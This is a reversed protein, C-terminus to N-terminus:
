FRSAIYDINITPAHLARLGRRPDANIAKLFRRVSVPQDGRICGNDWNSYYQPISTIWNRYTYFPHADSDGCLDAIECDKCDITVKYGSSLDRDTVIEVIEHAVTPAIYNVFDYPTPYTSAITTSLIAWYLDINPFGGFKAYYDAGEHYGGPTGLDVSPPPFIFYLLHNENVAPEPTVKKYKLWKKLRDRGQWDALQPPPNADSVIVPATVSGRGVGYQALGNLFPGGVLDNILEVGYTVVQPSIKVYYDGWFIPVVRVHEIIIRKNGAPVTGTFKKHCPDPADAQGDPIRANCVKGRVLPHEDNM